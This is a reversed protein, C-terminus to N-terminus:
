SGILNTEKQLRRQWTRRRWRFFVVRFACVLTWLTWPTAIRCHKALPLVDQEEPRKM